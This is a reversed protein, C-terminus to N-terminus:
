GYPHLRDIAQLIQEESSVVVDVELGTALKVEDRALIDLPDVMAITITNGIKFLPVVKFQRATREPVIRVVEPELVYTTLDMRPIGLQEEYYGLIADETALGLKLLVERLAAGSRRQEELARALGDKTLQGQEVLSQGLPKRGGVAMGIEG